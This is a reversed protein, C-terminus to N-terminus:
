ILFVSLLVHKPVPSSPSPLSTRWDDTLLLRPPRSPVVVGAGLVAVSVLPAFSEPSQGSQEQEAFGCCSDAQAQTLPATPGPEDEDRGQHM